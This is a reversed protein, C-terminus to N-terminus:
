IVASEEEESSDSKRNEKLKEKEEQEMKLQKIYIDRLALHNIQNIDYSRGHGSRYRLDYFENEKDKIKQYKEGEIAVGVWFCSMIIILLLLRFRMHNIRAQRFFDEQDRAQRFFEEQDSRTSRRSAERQYFEEAAQKGYTYRHQSKDYYKYQQAWEQGTFDSYRSRSRHHQSSNSTHNNFNNNDKKSSLCEYANSIDQFKKLANIDSKNNDPHYIKALKYFAEKIEKENAGRRVGLVEHPDKQASQNKSFTRIILTSNIQKM